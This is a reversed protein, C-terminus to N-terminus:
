HKGKNEMTMPGGCTVPLFCDFRDAGLFVFDKTKNKAEGGGRTCKHWLAYPQFVVHSVQTERIRPVSSLDVPKPVFVKVWQVM